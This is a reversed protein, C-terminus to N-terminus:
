LFPNKATAAFVGKRDILIKRAIRQTNMTPSFEVWATFIMPIAIKCHLAVVIM